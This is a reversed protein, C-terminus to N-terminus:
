KSGVKRRKKHGSNKKAPKPFASAVIRIHEPNGEVIFRGSVIGNDLKLRGSFIKAIDEATATIMATHDRYDYPEVSFNNNINAVYFTGGCDENTMNIQIAFSEGLKSTDVTYLKESLKRFKEEFTM